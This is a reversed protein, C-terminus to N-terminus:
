WRGRVFNYPGGRRPENAFNMYEDYGLSSVHGDVWLINGKGSHRDAFAMNSDKSAGARFIWEGFNNQKVTDQVYPTSAPKRVSAVKLVGDGERGLRLNVAYDGTYPWAPEYAEGHGAPCGFVAPLPDGKHYPLYKRGMQESAADYWSSGKGIWSVDASGDPFRGNNEAIHGMLGVGIQRLNNMCQSGKGKERISTAVPFGIAALVVIIVIVILLETLTFGRGRANGVIPVSSQNRRLKMTYGGSRSVGADRNMM